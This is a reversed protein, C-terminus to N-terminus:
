CPGYVARERGRLWRKSGDRHERDRIVVAELAQRAVEDRLRDTQGIHYSVACAILFNMSSCIGLKPAGIAASASAVSMAVDAACACSHGVRGTVM